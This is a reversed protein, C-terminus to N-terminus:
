GLACCQVHPQAPSILYLLYEVRAGNAMRQGQEAAGGIRGQANAAAATAELALPCPEGTGREPLSSRGRRRANENGGIAV